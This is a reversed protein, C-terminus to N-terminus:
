TFQAGESILTTCHLHLVYSMNDYFVLCSEPLSGCMIFGEGQGGGARSSSIFVCSCGALGRKKGKM